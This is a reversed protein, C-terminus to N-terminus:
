KRFFSTFVGTVGNRQLLRLEDIKDTSYGFVCINKRKFISIMRLNKMLYDVSFGVVGLNYKMCTLVISYYDDINENRYQTYFVEFGAKKAEQISKEDYAEMIIQKKLEQRQKQSLDQKEIEEEIKEVYYIYEDVTNWKVDILLKVKPYQQIITLITKLDLLTQGRELMNHMARYDHACYMEGKEIGCCDCEIVTYGKQLSDQLAELSNLYDGFQKAFGGCAHAIFETECFWPTESWVLPKMQRYKEENKEYTDIYSVIKMPENYMKKILDRDIGHVVGLDYSSVRETIYLQVKEKSVEEEILMEYIQQYGSYTAVLIYDIEDLRSKANEYSYIKKGEFIVENSYVDNDIFYIIDVYRFDLTKSISKWIVDSIGWVALKIKLM